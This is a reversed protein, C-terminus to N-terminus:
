HNNTHIRNTTARFEQGIFINSKMQGQKNSGQRFHGKKSEGLVLSFKEMFPEMGIHAFACAM